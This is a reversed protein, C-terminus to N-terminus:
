CRWSLTEGTMVNSVVKWMVAPVTLELKGASPLSFSKLLFRLPHLLEVQAAMKCEAASHPPNVLIM